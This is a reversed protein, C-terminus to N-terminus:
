GSNFNFCNQDIKMKGPKNVCLTVAAAKKLHDWVYTCRYGLVHDNLPFFVPRCVVPTGSNVTVVVMGNCSSFALCDGTM